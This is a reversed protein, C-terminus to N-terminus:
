AFRLSRIRPFNLKLASVEDEHWQRPGQLVRLVSALREMQFQIIAASSRYVGKERSKGCAMSIIQHASSSDFATGSDINIFGSLCWMIESVKDNLAWFNEKAERPTGAVAAVLNEIKTGPDLSTTRPLIENQACVSHPLIDCLLVKEVASLEQNERWIDCLNQLGTLVLDEEELSTDHESLLFTRTATTITNLTIHRWLNYDAEFGANLKNSSCVKILLLLIRLSTPGNLSSSTSTAINAHNAQLAEFIWQFRLLLQRTRRFYSLPPDSPLGISEVGSVGIVQFLLSTLRLNDLGLVPNATQRSLYPVHDSAM